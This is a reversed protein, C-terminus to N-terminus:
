TDTTHPRRPADRSIHSVAVYSIAPQYRGFYALPLKLNPWHNRDRDHEATACDFQDANGSEVHRKLAL